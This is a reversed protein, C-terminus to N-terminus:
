NRCASELNGRDLPFFRRAANGGAASKSRRALPPNSASWGSRSEFQAASRAPFGATQVVVNNNGEPLCATFMM